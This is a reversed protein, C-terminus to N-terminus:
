PGLNGPNKRAPPFKWRGPFKGLPLPIELTPFKWGGQFNGYWRMEQASCAGFKEMKAWM